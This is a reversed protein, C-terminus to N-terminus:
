RGSGSQRPAVVDIFNSLKAHMDIIQRSSALSDLKAARASVSDQPARPTGASVLAPGAGTTRTTGRAVASMTVNNLLGSALAILSVLLQPPTVSPTLTLTQTQTLTLTCVSVRVCV